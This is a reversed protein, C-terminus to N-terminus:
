SAHSREAPNERERRRPSTLAGLEAVVAAAHWPPRKDGFLVQYRTEAFSAQTIPSVPDTHPTREAVNWRPGILIPMVPSDRDCDAACDDHSTSVGPKLQRGCSGGLGGSRQTEERGRGRASRWGEYWAASSENHVMRSLAENAAMAASAQAASMMSSLEEKSYKSHRELLFRHEDLGARNRMLGDELNRCRAELSRHPPCPCRAEQAIQNGASSVTSGRPSFGCPGPLRTM